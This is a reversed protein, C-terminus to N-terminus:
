RKLRKFQDAFIKLLHLAPIIEIRGFWMNFILFIEAVDPMNASVIGM